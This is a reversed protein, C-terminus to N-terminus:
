SELIKECYKKLILVDNTATGWVIDVDITGYGHAVKNRMGTIQKWPVESYKSTFSVDFNKALEGIQLINFCVIQIMDDDKDFQEKTLTKIKELIKNCHKIIGFLLGQEKISLM